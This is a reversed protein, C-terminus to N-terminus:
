EDKFRVRGAKVSDRMEELDSLLSDLHSDVAGEGEQEAILKLDEEIGAKHMEIEEAASYNLSAYAIHHPVVWWGASLDEEPNADHPAPLDDLSDFEEYVISAMRDALPLLRETLEAGRKGFSQEVWEQSRHTVNWEQVVGDQEYEDWTPKEHEIFEDANGYVGIAAGNEDTNSPALGFHAGECGDFDAAREIADVVYDRVFQETLEENNTQFMVKAPM